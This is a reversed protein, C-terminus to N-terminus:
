KTALPALNTQATQLITAPDGSALQALASDLTSLAQSDNPLAIDPHAYALEKTHVALNPFTAQWQSQLTELSPIVGFGKAFKMQQAPTTLFKVFDVAGTLNASSKPIAWCNTFSLTAKDGSPGAPITVVEYKISPYDASLAGVM